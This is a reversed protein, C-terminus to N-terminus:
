HGMLHKWQGRRLLDHPAPRWLGPNPWSCGPGNHRKRYFFLCMCSPPVARLSGSPPTKRASDGCSVRSTAGMAGFSGAAVGPLTLFCVLMQRVESGGGCAGGLVQTGRCDRAGGM